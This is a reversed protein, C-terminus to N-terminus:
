HPPGLKFCVDEESLKLHTSKFKLTEEDRDQMKVVWWGPGSKGTVQGQRGRNAHAKKDRGTDDNAPKCEQGQDRDQHQHHDGDAATAAEADAGGADSAGGGGGGAGRTDYDWAASLRPVAGAAQASVDGGCCWQEREGASVRAAGVAARARVGCRRM